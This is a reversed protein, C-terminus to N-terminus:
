KRVLDLTSFVEELSKQLQKVGLSEEIHQKGNRSLEQWLEDSQMLEIIAAAFRNPEDEILANQRNTLSMGEAAINTLVIPTALSLSEGVKGKVGAGYRLPAISVRASAYHPEVKEAWGIVHINPHMLNILWQPSKSGIIKLNVNPLQRLVQPFIEGIFWAIGDENPKHSFGGVFIIDRRNLISATQNQYKHVNSVVRIPKNTREALIEKETQSVVLALDSKSILNLEDLETILSDSYTVKGDGTIAQRRVRQFHLDVSDYIVPKSGLKPSVKEFFFKAPGPRSLWVCDYFNERRSILDEFQKLETVLEVGLSVLRESYGVRRLENEPFFTIHFNMGILVRIIEFLRLSGSDQDPTPIQHDIILIRKKYKRRSAQEVISADAPFHESLVKRWKDYFKDKNSVQYAKLGSTLEKGHSIGEFHIVISAPEYWVEYGLSQLTFCADTDEYYAPAFREDFGGIQLWLDARIMLAAGSCYDVKRPYGYEPLDQTTGKGYNWGSADSFIIGGAEQLSGDQYVLKSGVAGIRPNSNMRRVLPDIWNGIPVTDNNLFLVNRGQALSAGFKASKLFGLNSDNRLYRLGRITSLVEQTKDNSADDVLIVEVTATNQILSKCIAGLCNLTYEWKNFACVVISVDCNSSIPPFDIEWNELTPFKSEMM